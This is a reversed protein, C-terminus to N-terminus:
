IRSLVIEGKGTTQRSTGFFRYNLKAFNRAGWLASPRVHAPCSLRWVHCACPLFLQRRDAIRIYSVMGCLVGLVRIM